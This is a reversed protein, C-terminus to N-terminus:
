GNKEEILAPYKKASKKRPFTSRKAMFRKKKLGKEREGIRSDM